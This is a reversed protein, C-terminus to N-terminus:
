LLSHSDSGDSSIGMSAGADRLRRVLARYGGRRNWGGM